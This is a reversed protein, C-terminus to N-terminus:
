PSIELTTLVLALHHNNYPEHQCGNNDIFYQTSETSIRVGTACDYVSTEERLESWHENIPTPGLQYSRECPAAQTQQGIFNRWNAPFYGERWLAIENVWLLQGDLLVPIWRSGPEEYQLLGDAVDLVEGRWAMRYAASDYGPGLRLEAIEVVVEVLRGTRLDVLARETPWVECDAEGSILQSTLEVEVVNPALELRRLATYQLQRVCYNEKLLVVADYNDTRLEYVLFFNWPKLVSERDEFASPGQDWYEYYEILRWADQLGNTIGQVRVMQAIVEGAAMSIRLNQITAEVLHYISIARAMTIEHLLEQWILHISAKLAVVWPLQVIDPMEQELQDLEQELAELERALEDETEIAWRRAENLNGPINSRMAPNILIMDDTEMTIIEGSRRRLEVSLHYQHDELGRIDLAALVGNNVPHTIPGAILVRESPSFLTTLQAYVSYSEFDPDHVTGYILIPVTVRAADWPYSIEIVTSEQAQVGVPFFVLALVFIFLVMKSM